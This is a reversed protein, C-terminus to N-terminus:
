AACVKPLDVGPDLTLVQRSIRWGKPTRVFHMVVISTRSITRAEPKTSIVASHCRMTATDGNVEVIPNIAGWRRVYDSGIRDCFKALTDLGEATDILTGDALLVDIGGDDTFCDPLLDTPLLGDIVHACLAAVQQILVIDAIDSNNNM